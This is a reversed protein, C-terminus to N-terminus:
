RLASITEKISLLTEKGTKLDRLTIKKAAREKEGVIAIFPAGLSNAYEFQRRLDRDTLDLSVTIGKERLASAVKTAYPYADDKVVAIFVRPAAPKIEAPRLIEALRDIGFSIGVAPSPAGYLGLLDDYRGGGGISGIGEGGEIEFVPGTYYALGRALSYDIKINKVGYDRALETIRQMDAVGDFDKSKSALSKFLSKIQSDSIGKEKMEAEVEEKTKKKIKDLARKAASELALPIGARSIIDNLTRINNMRFTFKKIGMEKLADSACAFLEAECKPSASGIIDADAQWFERYRGKQPEERRWVPGIQYAKFPKPVSNNSVMRALGATFEFRMGMDDVKFIQGRIDEGCKAELTKLYELAPTGVPAFGYSRYVREIKEMLQKRFEAESPLFDRMGRPIM